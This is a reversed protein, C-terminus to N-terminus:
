QCLCRVRTPPNPDCFFYAVQGGCSDYCNQYQVACFDSASSAPTFGWLSLALLILSPILRKM